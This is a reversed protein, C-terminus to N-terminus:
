RITSGLLKLQLFACMIGNLQYRIMTRLGEMLYPENLVERYARIMSKESETCFYLVENDDKFIGSGFPAPSRRMDVTEAVLSPDGGLSKIQALIECAYQNSEQALTSITRRFHKDSITSGIKEFQYKGEKLIELLHQLKEMVFPPSKYTGPRMM